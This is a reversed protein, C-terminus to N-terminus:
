YNSIAGMLRESWHSVLYVILGVIVGDILTEISITQNM